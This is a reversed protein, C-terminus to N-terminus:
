ETECNVERIQMIGQTMKVNSNNLPCIYSLGEKSVKLKELQSETDLTFDGVFLGEADTMANGGVVRPNALPVGDLYLRGTVTQNKTANVKVHYVQGPMAWTSSSQTSLNYFANTDTTYVQEAKPSIKQYPQITLTTKKGGEVVVPENGRNRVEFYQDEPLSRADVILAATNDVKGYGFEGDGIAFGSRQSLYQQSYHNNGFSKSVGVATYGYGNDMVLGAGSNNESNPGHNVSANVTYKGGRDFEPNDLNLAYDASYINQKGGEDSMRSRLYLSQYHNYSRERMGLTFQAFIKDEATTNHSYRSTMENIGRHYGLDVRLNLYDSLTFDRNLNVDWSEFETKNQRGYDQYLTNLGFNIGLGVNWPLFTNAGFQLYEFDYAPVLGFRHYDEEDGKFRNDRYSLNMSLAYLNKMLGVQYGSSGDLGMVGDAYLREAFWSNIPLDLSANAYGDENDMLFGSGLSVVSDTTYGLSLGAFHSQRSYRDRDNGDIDCQRCSYRNSSFQGQHDDYRGLQVAYELDGSRFSGNRKLFPQLKEERSGNVLKSVLLVDYGGSPWGETNLHQLGAPFQQLDILRGNRYVEVTGAQPLYVTVPSAAGDGPNLYNDTMYGLSIGDFSVPNFFSYTVSPTSSILNDSLRQRGAKFRTNEHELYLALEDLNFDIEKSYSWAGKVYSNGTINLTDNSSLSLSDGYTDSLYNLNHSHVFGPRNRHPIYTRDYAKDGTKFLSAPFILHLSADSENVTAVIEDQSFGQKNVRRLPASLKKLLETQSVNLAPMDVATIQEVIVQPSMLFVDNQDYEVGISGISSDAYIIDLVGSQKANFIDEFGEPLPISSAMLPTFACGFGVGLIVISATIKNNM